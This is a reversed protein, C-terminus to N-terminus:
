NQLARDLAASRTASNERWAKRYQGPPASFRRKFARNFAAESDYGVESAIQLVSRSTNRLSEAALELRWQTLYAMPGEDFYRAFRETLSSRSLNAEQALAELSWRYEPRQHLAALARGIAPDAAGALWGIQGPPLQTLYRRLVEVFLVEALRAAIVRSGPASAAAQEVAHRIMGELLESAPDARMNVRVVRPLGTLLPQILRDECVLYGCILRTREGGGGMDAIELNQNLLLPLSAEGDVPKAGSGNGMYHSDGHPIMIFDGAALPTTEEGVRVYGRGDAILHFEIVRNSPSAVYERFREAAPSHVCWPASYDARFFIAGSLKIVRLLESLADM